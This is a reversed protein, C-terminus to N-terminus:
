GPTALSAAVSLGRQQRAVVHARRWEVIAAAVLPALAVLELLSFLMACFTTNETLFFLLTPLVLGVRLAAQTLRPGIGQAAFLVGPVVLLAAGHVHNHFSVLMTVLLTALLRAAFTPSRPQWPGRWVLPVTALTLVSLMMTVLYGQAETAEPPLANAVLGRWSIMARPFVTVDVDRFGAFYQSSALYARVGDPGAIVISSTAAVVGVLVLGGLARWRRKCLFVFALVAAYQPKIALLGLWLGARFDDGRELARYAEYLSLLYLGVPQGVYLGIGLPLFTLLLAARAGRELPGGSFRGAIEWLVYLSPLMNLATWLLFAAPAPLLSLPAALPLLIPPYLLPGYTRPAGDAAHSVVLPQSYTGLTALDYAAAVGHALFARGGAWFNGYDWGLWDALASGQWIGALVHAWIAVFLMAAGFLWLRTGRQAPADLRQWEM